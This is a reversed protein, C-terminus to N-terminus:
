FKGVIKDSKDKRKMNMKREVQKAERELVKFPGKMTVVGERV